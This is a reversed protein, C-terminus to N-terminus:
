AHRRVNCNTRLGFYPSFLLPESISQNPIMNRAAVTPENCYTNSFPCSSSQNLLEVMTRREITAKKPNYKKIQLSVTNRRGITSSLTKFFLLRRTPVISENIMPKPNYPEVNMMGNYVWVINPQVAWSAPMNSTGAANVVATMIGIIALINCRPM